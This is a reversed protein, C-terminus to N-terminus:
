ASPPVPFTSAGRCQERHSRDAGHPLRLRDQQRVRDPLQQPFGDNRCQKAAPLVQPADAGGFQPALRSHHQGRPAPARLPRRTDPYHNRSRLDSIAPGAAALASFDGRREAETPVSESGQGSYLRQMFDNGYSFFTRNRGNYIKPIRVPGTFSTRTRNTRTPPWLSSEKEKTPPGTRLDYLQRNVFFPHTMLPRSLHSFWGTGHFDNTGTKPVMNVYAGTFRGVSADFAATQVRIEQIMEPPPSFAINGAGAVNPAGDLQFESYRPRTGGVSMNSVSDRAQPLWGHTPPSLSNVGPSFQLLYTTAGGPLPLDSIQRQQIVQGVSASASEILPAEATVTVSDSASGVQLVVDITLADGVSVSIPGREHKKFGGLEVALRYEGPLLNLLEYVGASNSSTKAVANTGTQTAVVTAGTVLADSPDTIRGTIRGYSSQACTPLGTILLLVLTKQFSRAHQSNPVRM